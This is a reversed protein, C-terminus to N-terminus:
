KAPVPVKVGLQGAQQVDIDIPMFSDRMGQAQAEYVSPGFGVWVGGGGGGERAEPNNIMIGGVMILKGAGWNTNVIELMYARTISYRCMFGM